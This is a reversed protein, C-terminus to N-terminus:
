AVTTQIDVSDVSDLQNNQIGSVDMAFAPADQVGLGRVNFGDMQALPKWINGM